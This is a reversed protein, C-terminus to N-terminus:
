ISFDIIDLPEKKTRIKTESKHYVLSYPPVSETLWVNGGIVSNNGIVTNGGLITAGSYIVVDNEISPHRKTNAFVKDVSLAGLTVGQYIKVREGIKATQGIVAGTGHDIFFSKGIEAEPHIDIGTRRHAFESMVRPILKVGLFNLFHALRYISIAFFGPYAMMIEECSTAAPDSELIHTADSKLDGYIKPLENFYNAVIENKDSGERLLNDLLLRKLKYQLDTFGEFNEFPENTKGKIIPFLFSYLDDAFLEISKKTPYDSNFIISM